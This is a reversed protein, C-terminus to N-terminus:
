RLPRTDLLARIASWRNEILGLARAQGAAALVSFDKALYEATLEELRRSLVCSGPDPNLVIGLGTPPAAITRVTLDPRQTRLLLLLRWVDGSWFGTVQERQATREDLPYCDHILIVSSPSCAREVNLFDRLAYEFRHLGDIFALEVPAGELEARPDFKAFFDDSTERYIRVNAPPPSRLHPQPDIGLVQTDRGVLKLSDGRSVGIELYTRPRLYRHIRALVHFYDEGPLSLQAMLTYARSHDAHEVARRCLALARDGRGLWRQLRARRFLARAARQADASPAATGPSTGSM